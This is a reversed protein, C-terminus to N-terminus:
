WSCASSRSCAACRRASRQFLAAALVAAAVREVSDADNAVLLVSAAAAAADLVLAVLVFTLSQAGRATDRRARRVIGAEFTPDDRGFDNDSM